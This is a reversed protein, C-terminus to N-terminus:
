MSCIHDKFTGHMSESLSNLVAEYWRILHGQTLLKYVNSELKLYGVAAGVYGRWRHPDNILEDPITSHLREVAIMKTSDDWKHYTKGKVSGEFAKAKQNRKMKDNYQRAMYGKSEQVLSWVSQGGDFDLIQVLKLSTKGTDESVVPKVEVFLFSFVGAYMAGNLVFDSDGVVRPRGVTTDKGFIAIRKLRKVSQIQLAQQIKPPHTTNNRSSQFKTPDKTVLSEITATCSLTTHTASSSSASKM